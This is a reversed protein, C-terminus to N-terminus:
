CTSLTMLEEDTYYFHIISLIMNIRFNYEHVWLEVSFSMKIKINNIDYFKNILTIKVSM